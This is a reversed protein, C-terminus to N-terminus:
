ARPRPMGSQKPTLAASPCGDSIKKWTTNNLNRECRAMYHTSSGVKLCLVAGEKVRKGNGLCECNPGAAAPTAALFVLASALLLSAMISKAWTEM